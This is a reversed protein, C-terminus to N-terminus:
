SKQTGHTRTCVSLAPFMNSNMHSCLKDELVIMRIWYDPGSLVEHSVLDCATGLVSKSMRYFRELTYDTKKNLKGFTVSQYEDSM